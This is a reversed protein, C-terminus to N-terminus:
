FRPDSCSWAWFSRSRFRPESIATRSCVCTSSPIPTIGSGSSSHPSCRFASAPWRAHDPPSSFWDSEQGKDLVFQFCAIGIVLLSLGIYDVKIGGRKEQSLWPPDEVLRSTFFLSLLGIPLNIFFIWHWNLNDTIWGGLTPGIAPALLWPWATFRSRRAASKPPFPIPWSPKNPLSCDAAAWRRAARARHHPVASQARHRVPVVVRHVAGRVDHLLAQTRLRHLALRFRALVIAASVLYSTLIWVAEDYTAGLSGAIHPLSVNAISSDLVEM